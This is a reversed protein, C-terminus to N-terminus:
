AIVIGDHFEEFTYCWLFSCSIRDLRVYQLSVHPTTSSITDQCIQQTNTIPVQIVNQNLWTTMEEMDITLGKQNVDWM